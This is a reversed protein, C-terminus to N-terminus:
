VAWHGSHPSHEVVQPMHEAQELARRHRGGVDRRDRAAYQLPQM